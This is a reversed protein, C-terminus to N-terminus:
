NTPIEKIIAIAADIWRNFWRENEDRPNVYKEWKAYNIAKEITEEDSIEVERKDIRMQNKKAKMRKYTVLLNFDIQYQDKYYKM